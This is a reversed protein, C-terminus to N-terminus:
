PWSASASAACHWAPHFDVYFSPGMDTLCSFLSSSSEPATSTMTSLVERGRSKNEVFHLLQKQIGHPPTHHGEGEVEAPVSSPSPSVNSLIHIFVILYINGGETGPGLASIACPNWSM